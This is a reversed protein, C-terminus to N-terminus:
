VFYSAIRSDCLPTESDLFGRHKGMGGRRGEVGAVVPKKVTGTSKSKGFPFLPHLRKLSVEKVLYYAHSNGGHRGM